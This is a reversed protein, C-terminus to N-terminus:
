CLWYLILMLVWRKWWWEDGLGLRLLSQKLKLWGLLFLHCALTTSTTFCRGWFTNKNHWWWWFPPCGLSFSWRRGMLYSQSQQVFVWYKLTNPIIHWTNGNLFSYLILDNIAKSIVKLFLSKPWFLMENKPCRIPIFQAIAQLNYVSANWKSM